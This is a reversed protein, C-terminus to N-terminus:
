YNSNNAIADGRGLKRGSTDAIDVYPWMVVTHDNKSLNSVHDFQTVHGIEHTAVAQIDYAGAAGKTSWKVATTFRIDAEVPNGKQDYDIATCALAGSCDQDNKLSGWDITSYGDRKASRSTKGEYHAPPNAQDKIGCWNTNNTWASQANRVAKVVTDRNIGKATAGIWWRRTTRWYTNGISAQSSSACRVDSGTEAANVAHAAGSSSRLVGNPWYFQVSLVRQQSDRYLRAFRSGDKRFLSCLETRGALRRRDARGGSPLRFALQGRVPPPLRLGCPRAQGAASPTRTAVSSSSDAAVGACAAAAVVIAVPFLRHRLLTM